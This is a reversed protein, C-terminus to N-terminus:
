KDFILELQKQNLSTLSSKSEKLFGISSNIFNTSNPQFYHVPRKPASRNFLSGISIIGELRYRLYDFTYCDSDVPAFNAKKKRKEFTTEFLLPEFNRHLVDPRSKRVKKGKGPLSETPRLSHKVKAEVPQSEPDLALYKSQMPLGSQCKAQLRHKNCFSQEKEPIQPKAPERTKEEFSYGLGSFYKEMIKM